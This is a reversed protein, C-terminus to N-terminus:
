RIEPEGVQVALQDGEGGLVVHPEGREVAAPGPPDTGVVHRDGVGTDRGVAGGDGPGGGAVAGGLHVDGRDVASRGFAQGVPATGAGLHAAPSRVALDEREAGVALGAQAAAPGARDREVSARGRGQRVSGDAIDGVSTGARDQQGRRHSALRGPPLPVPATRRALQPDVPVDAVPLTRALEYPQVFVEVPVDLVGHPRAVPDGEQGIVLADARQVGGEGVAGVQPPVGWEVAVVGPVRGPVAGPDHVGGGTFQPDEVVEVAGLGAAEVYPEAPLVGVPLRERHVGGAPEPRGGGVVGRAAARDGHAAGDVPDGVAGSRGAGEGGFGADPGPQRAGEAGLALFPHHPHRVGLAVVGQLERGGGAVRGAGGWAAEGGSLQAPDEPEGHCGVAAPGRDGRM